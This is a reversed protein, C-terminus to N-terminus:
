HTIGLSHNTQLYQRICWGGLVFVTWQHIMKTSFDITVLVANVWLGKGIVGRAYRLRHSCPCGGLVPVTHVPIGIVGKEDTQEVTPM